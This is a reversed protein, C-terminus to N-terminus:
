GKAETNHIDRLHAYEPKTLARDIIAQIDPHIPVDPIGAELAAQKCQRKLRMFGEYYYMVYTELNLYIESTHDYGIEDLDAWKCSCDEVGLLKYFTCGQLISELYVAVTGGHTLAITKYLPADEYDDDITGGENLAFLYLFSVYDKLRSDEHMQEERLVQAYEPSDVDLPEPYYM